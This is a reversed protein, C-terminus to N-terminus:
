RSQLTSIFLVISSTTFPPTAISLHSPYQTITTSSTTTIINSLLSPDFTKYLYMWRALTLNVTEETEEAEQSKNREEDAWASRPVGPVMEARDRHL